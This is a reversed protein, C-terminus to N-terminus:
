KELNNFIENMKKVFIQFDKKDMSFKGSTELDLTIYKEENNITIDLYEEVDNLFTIESIQIKM